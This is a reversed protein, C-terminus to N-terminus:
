SRPSESRITTVSRMEAKSTTKGFQDRVFAFNQVADGREPEIVGLIDHGVMYDRGIRDFVREAEISISVLQGAAGHPDFLNLHKWGFADDTAVEFAGGELLVALIAGDAADLHRFAQALTVAQRLRHEGGRGFCLFAV